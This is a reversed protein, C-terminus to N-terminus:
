FCISVSLYKGSVFESIYSGPGYKELEDTLDGLFEGTPLMEEGPKASYIVSDTDFYLVRKGLPQLYSYLKLRAQTTVYAAIAVSKLPGMEIFDDKKCYSVNAMDESIINATNVENTEDFFCSFFAEPDV